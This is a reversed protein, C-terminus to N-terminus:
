VGEGRGLGEKGPERVLERPGREEGIELRRRIHAPFYDHCRFKKIGSLQFMTPSFFM